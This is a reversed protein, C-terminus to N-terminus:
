EAPGERYVPYISVRCNGFRNDPICATIELIDEPKSGIPLWAGGGCEPQVFVDVVVYFGTSGTLSTLELKAAIASLDDVEIPDIWASNTHHTSDLQFLSSSWTVGPADLIGDDQADARTGTGVHVDITGSTIGAGYYEYCAAKVFVVQGKFQEGDFLAGSANVLALLRTGSGSVYSAVFTAKVLPPRTLWAQFTDGVQVGDHAVEALDIHFTEEVITTDASGLRVVAWKVGTGSDKWLVTASGSGASALHGAEADKVDAFMHDSDTVDIRAPCVGSVLARGIEASDLPELLIAFKGRDSSSPTAGYFVTKNKFENLNVTPLIVPGTLGLVDFRDRASGSVNMVSIVGPQPFSPQHGQGTRQKQAQHDRAADILTNFTTAPIVLPDGSQVKKLHDGM